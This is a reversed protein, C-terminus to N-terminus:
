SVLGKTAEEEDRASWWPPKEPDIDAGRGGNIIRDVQYRSAGIQSQWLKSIWTPGLGSRQFIWHIWAIEEDTLDETARPPM